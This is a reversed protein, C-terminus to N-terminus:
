TGEQQFEREARTANRMRKKTVMGAVGYAVPLIWTAFVGLNAGAITLLVGGLGVSPMIWVRTGINSKLIPTMEDSELEDRRRVYSWLLAMSAGALFVNLWYAMVGTQTSMHKSYLNTSFPMLCVWLLYNLNLWITARDVKKLSHFVNHHGMWMAGLLIFSILYAVFEPWIHFVARLVDENTSTRSLGEPMRIELVLLTMAIAFVGDSMAELRNKTWDADPNIVAM